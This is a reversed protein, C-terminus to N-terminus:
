IRECRHNPVFYSYGDPCAHPVALVPLEVYPLGVAPPEVYPLRVAPPEVYPLRVPLEAYPLRVAPPEVYPLRVPPLAVYPLRPGPPELYPLRVPPLEVYPLGGMQPGAYPTCIRTYPHRYYGRGCFGKVSRVAKVPPAAVKTPIPPADALAQAGLAAMVALAGCAM